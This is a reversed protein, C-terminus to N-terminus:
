PCHGSPSGSPFANRGAGRLFGWNWCAVAIGLLVLCAVSRRFDGTKVIFLITPVLLALPLLAWWHPAVALLAAYAAVIAASAFPVVQIKRFIGHKRVLQRQASGYRLMMGAFGRYTKPRYHRVTANPNYVLKFGAKRIRYDLDVDEGPWLHEDFGGMKLLIDRRYMANCTPNHETEGLAKGAKVYDGIFGVAKLFGQIEKGIQTDDDPSLQDGGVGAIGPGYFAKELEALWCSDPICDGDTFAVYEGLATEMGINRGRSPGGRPRAIVNVGDHSQCIEVTRDTSGDDVIIIEFADHKQRILAELCKGMTAECNYVPIVVSIRPRTSEAM